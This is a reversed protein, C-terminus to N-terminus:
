AVLNKKLFWCIKRSDLFTEWIASVSRKYGHKCSGDVQGQASDFLDQGPRCGNGQFNWKLMIIRDVGMDKSTGRENMNGLWLVRYVTERGMRTVYGRFMFTKEM